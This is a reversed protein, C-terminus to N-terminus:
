HAPTFPASSSFPGSKSSMPIESYFKSLNTESSCTNICNGNTCLMVVDHDEHHLEQAHVPFIYLTGFAIFFLATILLNKIQLHNQSYQKKTLALIRSELTDIGSISAVTAIQISPVDLFKKLASVLSKEGGLQSVAYSDAAIERHIKYRKILDTITPFFPFLSETVTAILMTLTDQNKLHYEEHKLVAKLEDTTLSKLLATSIYIKPARFGLCFAFKESSLIIITKDQLGLTPIVAHKKNTSQIKISLSNKLKQAKFIYLLVRLLSILVILSVIALPLQSVYQPIPIMHTEIFSRCYYTAHSILPFLKKLVGFSLLVLAFLLTTFLSLNKNVIKMSM